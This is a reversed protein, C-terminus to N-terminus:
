HLQEFYEREALVSKKLWKLLIVMEETDPHSRLKGMDTPQSTSAQHSSFLNVIKCNWHFLSTFFWRVCCFSIKLINMETQKTTETEEPKLWQIYRM